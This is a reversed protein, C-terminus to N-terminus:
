QKDEYLSFEVLNLISKARLWVIEDELAKLIKGAEEQTWEYRNSDFCRGLVRMSDIVKVTRSGAWKRFKYRRYLSTKTVGKKPM